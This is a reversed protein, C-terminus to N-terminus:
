SPSGTKKSNKRKTSVLSVLNHLCQALHACNPIFCMYYSALGLFSHLEKTSKPVPWNKVKDVKEPNASIDDSSLVHGLFVVGAQFFNCKKLEIKLHFNKFRNFVMETWDLMVVVDPAFICTMSIFCFPPLSNIELVNSRSWLIALDPDQMPYDLPCILSSM